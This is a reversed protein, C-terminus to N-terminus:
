EEIGYGSLILEQKEYMIKEDKLTQHSYGLLHLLGHVALFSLEKLLSHNSELAQRKATDISIYIDGLLRYPALDFPFAQNDNLAFTIVDTPGEKFRYDKNLSAIYLDDIFIINFVVGELKEQELAYNIIKHVEKMEGIEELTENFIGVSNM